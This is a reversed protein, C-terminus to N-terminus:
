NKILKGSGVVRSKNVIQYIYIGKDLFETNLTTSAIFEQQLIKRSTMDYLVVQLKEFGTNKVNITVSNAFPNPFAEIENNTSSVFDDVGLIIQQCNSALPLFNVLGHSIDVYGDYIKSRITASDTSCWCNGSLDADFPPYSIVPDFLRLNYTTNNCITNGTFTLGTSYYTGIEVGSNNFMVTNNRFANNVANFVARVGIFNNKISCGTTVGYPALAVGTNDTFSCTDIIAIGNIGDVNSIFYCRSVRNYFQCGELGLLNSVFKCDEWIASPSGGDHNVKNNNSFFCHKFTYPGNYALDMDIFKDAYKGIVYEMKVQNGASSPASTWAAVIGLWSGRTPASLNSTFEISDTVTGVAVLTGNIRLATGADFKVVVGPQITLTAATFVVVDSTVIYPSNAALWTTNSYIGGSVFTQAYSTFALFLSLIVLKISKM